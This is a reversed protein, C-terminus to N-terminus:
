ASRVVCQPNNRGGVYRFSATRWSIMCAQAMNIRYHRLQFRSRQTCIYEGTTRLRNVTSGPHLRACYAGLNPSRMVFGSPRPRPRLVSRPVPQVFRRENCLVYGRGFNRFSPTGTTLQCALALNVRYHRLQLRSRQTCIYEGTTRLRNAFSGRHNRACYASYNPQRPAAEATASFPLSSAAFLGAAVAAVGVVSGSFATKHLASRITM